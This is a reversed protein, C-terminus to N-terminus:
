DQPQPHLDFDVTANPPLTVTTQKSTFGDATVNVTFTGARLGSISYSGDAATTVGSLRTGSDEVWVSAGRVVGTAPFMRRVTGSVGFSPETVTNSGKCRMTLALIAAGALGMLIVRSSRM